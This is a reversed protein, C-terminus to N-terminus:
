YLSFNFEPIKGQSGNTGRNNKLWDAQTMRNKINPNHLDTGLMIISFSLIYVADLDYLSLKQSFIQNRGGKHKFPEPMESHYKEAFKEVIRDIVQAEGPLWFSGLFKRLANDIEM